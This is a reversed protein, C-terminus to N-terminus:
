LERTKDQVAQYQPPLCAQEARMIRVEEETFHTAEIAAVCIAAAKVFARKDGTMWAQAAFGAILGAWEYVSRSRDVEVSWKTRQKEREIRIQGLIDSM